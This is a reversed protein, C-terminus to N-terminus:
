TDVTILFNGSLRPSELDAVSNNSFLIMYLNDSPDPSSSLTKWSGDPNEVKTKPKLSIKFHRLSRDAQMDAGEGGTLVFSKYYLIKFKRKNLFAFGDNVAYDEGVTLTPQGFADLAPQGAADKLQVIALTYKVQEEENNLSDHSVLANITMRKVYCTSRSNTLTTPVSPFLLEWNSYRTLCYAIYPSAVDAAGGLITDRYTQEVVAHKTKRKLMRLDRVVKAMTTTKKSVLFRKGPTRRNFRRRRYYKKFGPM